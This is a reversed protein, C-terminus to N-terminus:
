WPGSCPAGRIGLFWFMVGGLAGQAVAVVVSRNSRPASSSRSSTSFRPQREAHLPVANKIRWTLEDGDRLRFFLLYLM